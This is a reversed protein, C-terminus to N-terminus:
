NIQIGVPTKGKYIYNEVWDSWFTRKFVDKTAKRQDKDTFTADILTLMKGELNQLSNYHILGYYDGGWETGDPNKCEMKFGGDELASITIIDKDTDRLMKKLSM